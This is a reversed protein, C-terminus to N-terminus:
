RILLIKGSLKYGKIDPSTVHFYYVGSPVPVGASSYGDWYLRKATLSYVIAGWKNFIELTFDNYGNTKVIFIDNMGDGNPTFINAALLTDKVNIDLSATDNCGAGAKVIVSVTHNGKSPFTHIAFTDGKQYTSQDFSWYYYYPYNDNNLVQASFYYEFTPLFITDNYTLQLQPFDRVHIYNTKIKTKTSNSSSATLSVTYFGPSLYAHMPNQLTSSDGDGFYWHWNFVTDGVSLDFFQISYGPCVLTTDAKFDVYIQAKSSIAWIFLFCVSYIRCKYLFNILKKQL